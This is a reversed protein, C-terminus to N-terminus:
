PLHSLGVVDSSDHDREGRVLKRAVDGALDHGDGTAHFAADEVVSGEFSHRRATARRRFVGFAAPHNGDTGPVPTKDPFRCDWVRVQTGLRVVPPGAARARRLRGHSLAATVDGSPGAADPGSRLKTPPGRRM